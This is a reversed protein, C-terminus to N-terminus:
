TGHLPRAPLTTDRTLTVGALATVDPVAPDVHAVVGAGQTHLRAVSGGQVYLMDAQGSGLGNYNVGLGNTDCNDYVLLLPTANESAGHMNTALDEAATHNAWTCGILWTSSGAAGDMGISGIDNEGDLVVSELITMSAAHHHISYTGTGTRGPYTLLKTTLGGIWIPGGNTNLPSFGTPCTHQIIVDAPDGTAGALDIRPVTGVQETYTGADIIVLARDTGSVLADAAAIGATITTHTRGPGVRVTATHQNPMATSYLGYTPASSALLLLRSM